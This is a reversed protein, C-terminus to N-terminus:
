NLKNWEFNKKLIFDRAFRWVLHNFFACSHLVFSGSIQLYCSHYFTSGEDATFECLREFFKESRACEDHHMFQILNGSALALLFNWNAAAGQRPGHFLKILPKYQQVQGAEIVAAGASDDSVIVELLGREVLTPPIQKLIRAVGHVNNFAPILVSVKPVSAERILVLQEKEPGPERKPFDSQRM